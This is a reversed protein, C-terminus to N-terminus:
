SPGSVPSYAYRAATPRTTPARAAAPVSCCMGAQSVGCLDATADTSLRGRHGHLGM